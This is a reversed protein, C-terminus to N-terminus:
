RSAPAAPTEQSQVTAGCSSCFAAEPSIGAGCRTCHRSESPSSAKGESVERFERVSKGLQGGIETLKGPGFVILVIVLIVILHM